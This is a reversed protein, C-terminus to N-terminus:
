GHDVGLVSRYGIARSSPSQAAPPKPQFFNRGDVTKLSRSSVAQETEGAALAHAIAEELFDNHSFWDFAKRHLNEVSEPHERKLRTQLMEAWLPHYRYWQRTEDLPVLFLNTRELFELVSQSGIRGIVHDCLPATLKELLSTQLLFSQISEPQRKLVEDTLYDAVYRHGGGFTQIFTETEAKDSEKQQISQLALAALQLGAAWGETRDTLVAIEQASLGL